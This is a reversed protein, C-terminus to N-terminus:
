GDLVIVILTRPGHMGQVRNLEIDSTASPGSIWTLPSRPDLSAVADPVAAVIRGPTVLALHADPVLTLERRGQGPGHDLVLTGTQAIAVTVTHDRRGGRGARRHGAAAPRAAAGAAGRDLGRAARGPRRGPETVPRLDSGGTFVRMDRFSPIFRALPDSLEIDGRECLVMAAVATIPKTMSYIRFLTGPEVPLGAELDRCGGSSLHALVSRRGVAMSWGPIRGDSTLRRQFDDLRGLRGPDLGALRPDAAAPDLGVALDSM